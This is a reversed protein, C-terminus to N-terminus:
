IIRSFYPKVIQLCHFGQDSVANQLTQDPDGSMALLGKWPDGLLIM